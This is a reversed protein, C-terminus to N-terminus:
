DKKKKASLLRLLKVFANYSKFATIGYAAYRVVGVPSQMLSTDEPFVTQQVRTRLRKSSRHIDNMTHRKERKLDEICTISQYDM